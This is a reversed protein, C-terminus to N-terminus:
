EAEEGHGASEQNVNINETLAISVRDKVGYPSGRRVLMDEREVWRNMFM